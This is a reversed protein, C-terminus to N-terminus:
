SGLMNKLLNSGAKRMAKQANKCKESPEDQMMEKQCEELVEALLEPDEVLEKVTPTGCATLLLVPAALLTKRLLNM